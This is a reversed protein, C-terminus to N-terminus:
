TRPTWPEGGRFVRPDIPNADPTAPKPAASPERLTEPEDDDQNKNQDNEDGQMNM